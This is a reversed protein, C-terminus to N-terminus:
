DEDEMARRAEDVLARTNREVAFLANLMEAVGVLILGMVAVILGPAMATVARVEAAGFAGYFLGSLVVLWGIAGLLKPIQTAPVYDAEPAENAM